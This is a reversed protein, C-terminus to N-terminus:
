ERMSLDLSLIFDPAFRVMIKILVYVTHVYDAIM